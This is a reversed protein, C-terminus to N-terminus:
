TVFNFVKYRQMTTVKSNRRPSHHKKQIQNCHLCLVRLPPEHPYNLRKLSLYFESSTRIRLEERHNTGNGKVHDICLLSINAEGCLVCRNSGDSYYGIVELKLKDRYEKGKQLYYEKKGDRNKNVQRIIRDRNKEYYDKHYNSM